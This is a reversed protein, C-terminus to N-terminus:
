FHRVNGNSVTNCAGRVPNVSFFLVVADRDPNRRSPICSLPVLYCSTGDPPLRLEVGGRTPISVGGRVWRVTLEACQGGWRGM